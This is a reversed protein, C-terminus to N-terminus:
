DGKEWKTLKEVQGQAARGPFGRGSEPGSFNSKRLGVCEFGATQRSLPSTPFLSRERLAFAEQGVRDGWGEQLLERVILGGARNEPM